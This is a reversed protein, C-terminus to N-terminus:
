RIHKKNFLRNYYYLLTVVINLTISIISINNYILDFIIRYYEYNM